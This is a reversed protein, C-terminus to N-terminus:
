EVALRAVSRREYRTTPGEQISEFLALERVALVCRPPQEIRQLPRLPQKARALTIHPLAPQDFHAGLKEFEARVTAACADFGPQTQSCALALIRARREDPFPGVRDFVIEFPSCHAAAASLAGVFGEIRPAEIAGLYALTVHLKEPREFRVPVGAAALGEIARLAAQRVSDDLEIAAFTAM